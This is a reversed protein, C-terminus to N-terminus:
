DELRAEASLAHAILGEDRAVVSALPALKKAGEVSCEIFSFRKQFDYVGLPSAFRATRATPLVHNPGACYDGFAEPTHRGLFVSGAHRIQDILHRPEAVALELHEPALRNSIAVAESLDRVKILAGQQQLSAKVVESRELSPLRTSLVRHVEDLYSQDPSLLLARASPDHEAQAFMDLATWAAPSHGDCIILIESPGAIMDIGVTGYVLRKAAAVYDNGPGVIKDVSPVTETGYALAAIAQAGGLTFVQEIGVLHAAGLVSDNLHGDPAPVTLIVEEVGAVAAPIATMLVSSPYAARGGPAYIGVRDLPRVEQGLRTGNAEDFSWSSQVQHEHYSRIREASRQLADKLSADLRAFAAQLESRDVVFQNAAVLERRDFRNTYELLATDGREIVGTLIGRVVEEVAENPTRYAGSLRRLAAEFCADSSDLRTMRLLPVTM